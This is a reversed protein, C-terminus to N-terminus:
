RTKTANMVNEFLAILKQLQNDIKNLKSMCAKTDNSKSKEETLCVTKVIEECKESVTNLQSELKNLREDLNLQIAFIKENIEQLIDFSSLSPKLRKIEFSM